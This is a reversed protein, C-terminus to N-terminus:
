KGLLMKHHPIGAEIYEESVTKFGISAYFPVLYSQASIRVTKEGWEGSIYALALRMMERCIGHRRHKADVCVRGISVEDYSVGRPIMRLFGVVRGACEVWLCTTLPDKEDADLDDAHQELYFVQERLATIAHLKLVTLERYPRIHYSYM